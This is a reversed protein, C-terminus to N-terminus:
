EGQVGIIKGSRADIDVRVIAGNPRRYTMRYLYQGSRSAGGSMEVGMFEGRVRRSVIERLQRLSLIEGSNVARYAEDQEASQAKAVSVTAGSGFLALIVFLISFNKM